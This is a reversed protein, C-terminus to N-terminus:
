PVRAPGGPRPSEPGALRQQNIPYLHHKYTVRCRRLQVMDSNPYMTYLLTPLKPRSIGQANANPVTGSHIPRSFPHVFLYLWGEETSSVIVREISYSCTGVVRHSEGTSYM